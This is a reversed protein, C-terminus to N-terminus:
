KVFPFWQKLCGWMYGVCLSDELWHSTLWSKFSPPWSLLFTVTMVLVLLIWHNNIGLGITFFLYLSSYITSLLVTGGFKPMPKNWYHHNEHYGQNLCFPLYCKSSKSNTYTWDIFIRWYFLYAHNKAPICILQKLQLHGGALFWSIM